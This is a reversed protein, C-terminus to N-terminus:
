FSFRVMFQMIRMFGAQIATQGFNSTGVTNRGNLARTNVRNLMNLMEAKFQATKGGFRLNKIFVADVNYQGPTRLDTITRPANGFTFPAAVSFAAPNVWTATSHDASALRDALSGTTALDVGSVLNPRQVGSFTGTNDSQQVILPFGQQLNIAASVTWGGLIWNAVDNGNMFKKGKGFPLNVIPALIVRHPVDLLSTAYEADPNYCAAFNTTTCAPAYALFNYNNLPNPGTGAGSYFNTQAMQNDKLNSYTYSVRGGFTGTARKTWEAVVANYRSKGELVHRALINGFQPFPRLLQRRTLTSQSAFPGANANGFFPNPLSDNLANGLAMYKPDLQNINVAADASGGLSLHDGRSGLYSVTVSQSGGFERQMDVSYQQVRPSTSDQDVYSINTGVGSLTGLSNKSTQVLGNPFPNTLTTTPNTASQVLVTNQTYGVQGYNNASSSPTPYNYPAWYIGYGGRVVTKSDVSYAVGVRPSWKLKTPNGQTTKNGDIGAYLLGGTVTRAGIGALADAPVVVSSLANTATRDFGVTFNNNKEAM